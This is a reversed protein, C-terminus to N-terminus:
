DCCAEDSGVLSVTVALTTPEIASAALEGRVEIRGGAAIGGPPTLRQVGEFNGTLRGSWLFAAGAPTVDYLTWVSDQAQPSGQANVTVEARAHAGLLTGFSQPVGPSLVYAHTVTEHTM